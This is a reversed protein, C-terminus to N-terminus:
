LLNGNNLYKLMGPANIINVKVSNRIQPSKKATRRKYHKRTARIKVTRLQNPQSKIGIPKEKMIQKAPSVQAVPRASITKLLKTQEKRQKQALIGSVTGMATPAIALALGASVLPNEKIINKASKLSPNYGFKALNSTLNIVKGPISIAVTAAKAPHKVIAGVAVPTALALATKGAITKPLFSKAISPIKSFSKRALIGAEGASAGAGLLVGAGVVATSGLITGISKWGSKKGLAIDRRDVKVQKAASTWGKTLFTKPESLPASIYDLATKWWAM